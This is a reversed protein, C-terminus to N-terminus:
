RAKGTLISEVKPAAETALRDIEESSLYGELQGVANDVTAIAANSSVWTWALTNITADNVLTGAAALQLTEGSNVTAPNPTVLISFLTPAQDPPLTVLRLALCVAWFAFPSVLVM